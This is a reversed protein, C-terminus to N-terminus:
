NSALSMHFPNISRIEESEESNVSGQICSMERTVCVGGLSGM